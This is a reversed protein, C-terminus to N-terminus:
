TTRRKMKHRLVIVTGSAIAVLLMFTQNFNIGWMPVFDLRMFELLFRGLPYTILYVFFLDGEKLQQPYRRWLWLLLIANCLNWMSEYLFLPHFYEYNEYGALRNEPRIFIKWPLDTPPGYLEQNIFNGWRGIAQALAVGPAAIDLMFGLNLNRRRAFLYLGVVGGAIAGPMGLGGEWTTLIRLPHTLYDMTTYTNFKSPTFIHYIRAGILGFILLWILADWVLDTDEGRESLLRRALLTAVVAGFMIIMGYFRFYLFGIHIGYADVSM